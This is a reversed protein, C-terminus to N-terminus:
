LVDEDSEEGGYATGNEEESNGLIEGTSLQFAKEATTELNDKELFRAYSPLIRLGFGRDAYEFVQSEHIARHNDLHYGWVLDTTFVSYGTEIARACRPLMFVRSGDFTIACTDMDSNLLIETPSAFLKLVVRIRRYPCTALFSITKASKVVQREATSPLNSVWIQHIEELKRNADGPTLGYVYMDISHDQLTFPTEEESISKSHDTCLLAEMVVDGAVLTNSWDFDQFIHNTIQGFTQSFSADSSHIKLSRKRLEDLIQLGGRPLDARAFELMGPPQDNQLRTREIPRETEDHRNVVIDPRLVASLDELSVLHEGNYNADRAQSRIYRENLLVAEDIDLAKRDEEALLTQPLRLFARLGQYTTRPDSLIQKLSPWTLNQAIIRVDADFDASAGLIDLIKGVALDSLSPTHGLSEQNLADYFRDIQFRMHAEALTSMSWEELEKRNRAQQEADHEMRWANKLFPPLNQLISSAM